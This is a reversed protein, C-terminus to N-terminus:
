WFISEIDEPYGRSSISVALYELYGVPLFQMRRCSKTQSKPTDSEWQSAFHFEKM